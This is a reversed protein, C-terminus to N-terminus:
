AIRRATQHTDRETLGVPGTSGGVLGWGPHGVSEVPNGVGQGPLVELRVGYAERILRDAEDNQCSSGKNIRTRAM